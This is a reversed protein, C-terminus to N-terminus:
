SSWVKMGKYDYIEMLLFMRVKIGFSAIMHDGVGLIAKDRLICAQSVEGLELRQETKVAILSRESKKKFCM